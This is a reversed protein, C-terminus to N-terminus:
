QRYEGSSLNGAWLAFSTVERPNGTTDLVARVSYHAALMAPLSRNTGEDLATFKSMPLLIEYKQGRALHAILPETKMRGAPGNMNFLPSEKGRPSTIRFLLNYIPGKATMGGLPIRVEPVGTNEIVLRLLPEPTTPGPGIGLRVGSSVAGWQLGSAAVALAFVLGKM